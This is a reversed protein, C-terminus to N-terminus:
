GRSLGISLRNATKRVTDYAAGDSILNLAKDSIAKIKRNSLRRWDPVMVQKYEYLQLKLLGSGQNRASDTLSNLYTDSNLLLWAVEAPFDGLPNSVYFNDSLAVNNMNWLHRPANRIYYNFVIPGRVAKIALKNASVNNAIVRETIWSKFRENPLNHADALYAQKDPNVVLGDLRSQKIFFPSSKDYYPDDPSALYAKRVPLATGRRVQLLDGIPVLTSDSLETPLFLEPIVYNRKRYLLIQADVLVGDFPAQISKSSLLEAHRDMISLTKKGYGSQTIADYVIACLIGGSAIDVIGKLMFLAFLNSKKDVPIGLAKSLYQHYSDKKEKQILEQRIYPPNMIVLDFVGALSQDALYDSTITKGSFGLELNKTSTEIGMREDIDYCTLEIDRIGAKNLAISFTAPGCAPDLVRMASQHAHMADKVMETAVALPTWVQGLESNLILERNIM